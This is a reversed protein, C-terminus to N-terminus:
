QINTALVPMVQLATLADHRNDVVEFIEDLATVSLVGRITDGVCCLLIRQGDYGLQQKLRLLPALSRSTLFEVNTFDLVVDYGGRDQVCCIVNELEEFAEPEAPLEALVVGESRMEISM